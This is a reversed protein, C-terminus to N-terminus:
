RVSHLQNWEFQALEVQALPVDCVGKGTYRALSTQNECTEFLVRSHVNLM